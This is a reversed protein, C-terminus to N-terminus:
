SLSMGWEQCKADLLGATLGNLSYIVDGDVGGQQAVPGLESKSVLHGWLEVGLCTSVVM